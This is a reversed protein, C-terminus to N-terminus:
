TARSWAGPKFWRSQAGVAPRMSALKGTAIAKLTSPGERVTVHAVELVEDFVGRNIRVSILTALGPRFVCEFVAWQALHLRIRAPTKPCVCVRARSKPEM